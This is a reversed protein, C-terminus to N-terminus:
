AGRPRPLNIYYRRRNEMARETTASEAGNLSQLALALVEYIPIIVSGVDESYLKTVKASIESFVFKEASLSNSALTYVSSVCEDSKLQEAAILLLKVVAGNFGGIFSIRESTTTRDWARGNMAGDTM